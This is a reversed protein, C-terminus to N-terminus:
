RGLDHESTRTPNGRRQSHRASSTSRLPASTWRRSRSRDSHARNLSSQLLQSRLSAAQTSLKLDSRRDSSSGQEQSQPKKDLRMSCKSRLMKRQPDSRKNESHLGGIATSSEILPMQHRAKRKSWISLSHCRLSHRGRKSQRFTADSNTKDAHWTSKYDSQRGCRM